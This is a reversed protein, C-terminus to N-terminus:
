VLSTPCTTGGLRLEKISRPATKRPSETQPNTPPHVMMIPTDHPRGQLHVLLVKEFGLTTNLFRSFFYIKPPPALM